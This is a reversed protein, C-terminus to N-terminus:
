KEELVWSIWCMRKYRLLELSIPECLTGKSMCKRKGSGHSCNEDKEKFLDRTFPLSNRERAGTFWLCGKRPVNESHSAEFGKIPCVYEQLMYSCMVNKEMHRNKKWELRKNDSYHCSTKIPTYICPYTTLLRSEQEWILLM